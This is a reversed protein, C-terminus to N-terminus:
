LPSATYILMPTHLKDRTFMDGVTGGAVSSFAAGALGDLFRGVLITEVNQAVACLVLFILFLPLSVLYILKRGYFESLPALVMPGWGLGAIFLSLGLTAVIESCEFETIIQGYCSAYLSSAVCVCLTTSSIMLVISWKRLVTMSHPNELDREDWKVEFNQMLDEDGARESANGKGSAPNNM